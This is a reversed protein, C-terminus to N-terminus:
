KGYAFNEWSPAVFWMAPIGSTEIQGKELAEQWHSIDTAKMKEALEFYDQTDFNEVTDISVKKTDFM